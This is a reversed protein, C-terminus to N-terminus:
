RDLEDARQRDIVGLRGEVAVIMAPQEVADRLLGAGDDLVRHEELLRLLVRQGIRQGAQRVRAVEEHVQRALQRAGLPQLRLDRQHDHVEVVELLDVVVVAVVDAVPREALDRAHQARRDPGYSM